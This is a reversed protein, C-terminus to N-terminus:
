WKAEKKILRREDRDKNETPVNPVNLKDTKAKAEPMKSQPKKSLQKGVSYSTRIAKLNEKSIFWYNDFCKPCTRPISIIGNARKQPLWIHSCRKCEFAISDLKFLDRAPVKYIVRGRKISIESSLDLVKMDQIPTETVERQNVADKKEKM